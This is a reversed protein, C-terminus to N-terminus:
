RLVLNKEFDRQMRKLLFLSIAYYTLGVVIFIGGIILFQFSKNYSIGSILIGITLASIAFASLMSNPKIKLSITSGEGSNIIEGTLHASKIKANPMYWALIPRNDYASFENKNTFSGKINLATQNFIKELKEKLNNEDLNSSYSKKGINFINKLM